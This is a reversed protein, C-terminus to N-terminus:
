KISDPVFWYGNENEKDLFSHFEDSKYAEVVAKAWESDKKDETTVAQLILEPRLTEQFLQLNTDVGSSYSISGPIVGWDLDDLSRPITASDMPKIQLNHPNEAVDNTTLTSKNADGKLKLWGAQELMLFARSQNSADQPVGVTQGDAVEDLSKHTSSYLGAPVTPIDTLNVLNSNTEKNFNEMYAIHQDVNLDASGESVAVDAQQLDTFEVYELKYGEGELVPGVGEKFLESYPGPSTAVKVTQDDGESSSSCAVMSFSTTAVLATALVRRRTRSTFM